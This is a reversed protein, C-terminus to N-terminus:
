VRGVSVTVWGSVSRLLFCVTSVQQLGTVLVGTSYFVLNFGTLSLRVEKFASSDPRSSIVEENGHFWKLKAPPNGGM